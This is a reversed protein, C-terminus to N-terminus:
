LPIKNEKVKKDLKMERRLSLGVGFTNPVRNVTLRELM